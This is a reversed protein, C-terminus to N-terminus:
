TTMGGGCKKLCNQCKNIIHLLCPVCTSSNSGSLLPFAPFINLMAPPLLPIHFVVSLPLCFFLCGSLVARQRRSIYPQDTQLFNSLQQIFMDVSSLGGTPIRTALSTARSAKKRHQSAKSLLTLLLWGDQFSVM